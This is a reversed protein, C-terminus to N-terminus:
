DGSKYHLLVRMHLWEDKVVDDPVIFSFTKIEGEGPAGIMFTETRYEAGTTDFEGNNNWDIYAHLM